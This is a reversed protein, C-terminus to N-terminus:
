GSMPTEALNCKATAYGIQDTQTNAQDVSLCCADAFPLGTLVARSRGDEVDRVVNHKAIPVVFRRV